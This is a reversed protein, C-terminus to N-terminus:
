PPRGHWPALHRYHILSSLKYPKRHLLPRVPPLKTPPETNMRVGAVFPKAPPWNILPKGVARATRMRARLPGIALDLLTNEGHAVSM